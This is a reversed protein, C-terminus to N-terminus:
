LPADCYIPPVVLEDLAEYSIVLKVVLTRGSLVELGSNAALLEHCVRQAERVCRDVREADPSSLLPLAAYVFEDEKPQLQFVVGYHIIPQGALLAQVLAPSGRVVPHLSRLLRRWWTRRGELGEPSQYPNPSPSM